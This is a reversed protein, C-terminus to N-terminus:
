GEAMERVQATTYGTKGSPEVGVFDEPGLAGEEAAERAAPHAFDVADLGPAAEESDVGLANIDFTEVEIGAGEFDEVIWPYRDDIRALDCPETQGETYASANRPHITDGTGLPEAFVELAETHHEQRTYVLVDM